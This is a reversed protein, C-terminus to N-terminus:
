SIFSSAQWSKLVFSWFVHTIDPVSSCLTRRNDGRLTRVKSRCNEYSRCTNTVGGFIIEHINETPNVALVKIVVGLCLKALKICKRTILEQNLPIQLSGLLGIVCYSSLEQKPCKSTMTSIGLIERKISLLCM